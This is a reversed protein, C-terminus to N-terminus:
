GQLQGTAPTGVRRQDLLTPFCAPPASSMGCDLGCCRKWGLQAGLCPGRDMGRGRLAGERGRLLM